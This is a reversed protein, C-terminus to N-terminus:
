PKGIGSILGDRLISKILENIKKLKKKDTELWEMYETLGKVTFSTKM